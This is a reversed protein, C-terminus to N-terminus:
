ERNTDIWDKENILLNFPRWIGDYGYDHLLNVMVNAGVPNMSHIYFIAKECYKNEVLWKVFSYGTDPEKWDVWIKGGLDHDLFLVDINGKLVEQKATEVGLCIILEESKLIKKFIEIRNINDELILVRM